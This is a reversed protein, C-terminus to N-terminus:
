VKTTRRATRAVRELESLHYAEDSSYEKQGEMEREAQLNVRMARTTVALAAAEQKTKKRWAEWNVLSWMLM